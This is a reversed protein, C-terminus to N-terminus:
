FFPEGGFSCGRWAVFCFRSSFFFFGVAVRSAFLAAVDAAGFCIRARSSVGDRDLPRRFGKAAVALSSRLPLERELIGEDDNEEGM